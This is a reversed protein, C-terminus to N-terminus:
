SEFDFPLPVSWKNSEMHTIFESPLILNYRKLLYPLYEPWIWVGDTLVSPTGMVQRNEDFPDRVVGMCVVIIYGSQLYSVVRDANAVPFRSILQELPYANTNDPEAEKCFGVPCLDKLQNGKEPWVGDM